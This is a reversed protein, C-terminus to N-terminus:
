NTERAARDSYIEKSTTKMEKQEKGGKRQRKDDYIFM